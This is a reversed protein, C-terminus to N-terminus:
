HRKWLVALILLLILFIADLIAQALIIPWVNLGPLAVNPAVAIIVILLLAVIFVVTSWLRACPIPSKECCKKPSILVLSTLLLTGAILYVVLLGSVAWVPFNPIAPCAGAGATGKKVTPTCASYAAIEERRTFTDAARFGKVDICVKSGVDTFKMTSYQNTMGIRFANCGQSYPGGKISGPRDLSASQFVPFGAAGGIDNYDSNTGDDYAIMHADGALMIMNTINNSAVFNALQKRSDTYSLWNTDGVTAGGIWPQSSVLVLMGYSSANSLESFVWQMQAQSIIQQGPIQESRTDMLVFRVRGVTFAQYVAGTNDVTTTNPLNYHPFHARYTRQAAPRSPSTGVADNPGFDHDDYIYAIGTSKYFNKPNPYDFVMDYAARFRAEDNTAIDQYHLDGM